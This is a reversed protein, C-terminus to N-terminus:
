AYRPRGCNRHQGIRQVPEPMYLLALINAECRGLCRRCLKRANTLDVIFVFSSSRAINRGGSRHRSAITLM